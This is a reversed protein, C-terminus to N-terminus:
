QHFHLNIPSLPSFAVNIDKLVASQYPQNTTCRSLRVACINQNPVPGRPRPIHLANAMNTQIYTTKERSRNEDLWVSTEVRTQLNRKNANETNRRKRTNTYTKRKIKTKQIKIWFGHKDDM